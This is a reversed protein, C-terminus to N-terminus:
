PRQAGDAGFVLRRQQDLAASNHSYRILWEFRADPGLQETAQQRQMYLRIDRELSALAGEPDFTAQFSQRLHDPTPLAQRAGDPAVATLSLEWVTIQHYVRMRWYTSGIVLCALV